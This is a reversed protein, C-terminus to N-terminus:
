IQGDELSHSAAPVQGPKLDLVGADHQGNSRALRDV